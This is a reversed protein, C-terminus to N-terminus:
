IMDDDDDLGPPLPPWLEVNDADPNDLHKLVDRFLTEGISAAADGAEAIHEPLPPSVFIGKEKLSALRTDSLTPTSKIYFATSLEKLPEGSPSQLLSLTTQLYPRLLQEPNTAENANQNMTSFYLLSKGRPCSLTGEGNILVNVPGSAEGSTLSGSPFVILAADVPRSPSEESSGEVPEGTSDNETAQASEYSSVRSIVGDILAICCSHSETTSLNVETETQLINALHPLYNVSSIVVDATLDEPIETLKLRLNKAEENGSSPEPKIEIALTDRGLIYTGGSVACVRCFGQALEGLGGYQGILFPSAGYRGASRLYNRIRRLAPLATDSQSKCLALACALVSALQGNISFVEKLFSEFEMNEKGQLESSSEFEGSAFMLFRMLKRKDILSLDKSKFIEEKSGPVSKLGDSSYVLVSELLKFGGYRAVGSGILSSILPGRSPIISPALSLSFDRSASPFEGRVSATRLRSIQNHKGSTRNLCEQLEKTTLSAEDAGYYPNMDIHAVKLGVKALAAAVISEALGTGLIIVQFHSDM